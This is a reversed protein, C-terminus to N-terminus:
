RRPDPPTPGTPWRAMTLADGAAVLELKDEVTAATPGDPAPRGDPRPDIRWFADIAPDPHRVLPERAFDDWPSSGVPQAIPM